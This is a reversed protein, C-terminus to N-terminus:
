NRAIWIEKEPKGSDFRCPIDQVFKEVCDFTNFSSGATALGLWLM